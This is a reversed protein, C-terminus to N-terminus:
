KRCYIGPGAFLFNRGGIRGKSIGKKMITRSCTAGFTVLFSSEDAYWVTVSRRQQLPTLERPNTPNDALGGGMTSTFTLNGNSIAGSTLVETDPMLKWATPPSTFIAYEHNVEHKNQDLDFISFFTNSLEFVTDTGSKVFTFNLTTETMCQINVEAMQSHNATPPNLGNFATNTPIYTSGDAVKIVLDVAQKEWGAEFVSAYRLEEPDSFVPGKGGLNNFQLNNQLQWDSVGVCACDGESRGAFLINRGFMTSNFGKRAQKESLVFDKNGFTFEWTSTGVLTVSIKSQEAIDTMHLPDTPNDAANGGRTSEAYLTGDEANGTVSVTTHPTTVSYSAVGSTFQVYERGNPLDVKGAADLDYVSFLLKEDASVSIPTQTGSQVLQFKLKAETNSVINVQGFMGLLGNNLNNRPKYDPNEVTVVLDAEINGKRYVGSYRIERSGSINPGQGGLNTQTVKAGFFNWDMVNTCNWDSKPEDPMETTAPATALETARAMPSDTSVNSTLVIVCAVLLLATGM